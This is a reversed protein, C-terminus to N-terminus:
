QGFQTESSPLALHGNKEQFRDISPIASGPLRFAQDSSQLEIEPDTSIPVRSDRIPADTTCYRGRCAASSDVPWVTIAEYPLDVRCRTGVEGPYSGLSVSEFCLGGVEIVTAFTSGLDAVDVIRGEYNGEDNVVVHEPPISFSMQHGCGLGHTDMSFNCTGALVAGPKTIWGQHINRYGLLIAVRPSRPRCLVDHVSGSQLVRGAEIVILEDSLYAAERPDHTVLVTSVGHERQLSRLEAHLQARVPIDLASFPEDLLLLRPSRALAQALAVRQRQGGSLESPYRDQLGRLGLRDLWHVALSPDAGVGFCLQDWVRLHPFLGYGQPVYGVSRSETPVVSVDLNGYAIRGVDTGLLGAIARLATSKGSGSPGVV